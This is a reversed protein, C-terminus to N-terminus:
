ECCSESETEPPNQSVEEVTAGCCDSGKDQEYRATLRDWIRGLTSQSMADFRMEVICIFIVIPSIITSSQCVVIETSEDIDSGDRLVLVCGIVSVFGSM